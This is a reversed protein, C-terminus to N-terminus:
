AYFKSFDLTWAGDTGGGDNARVVEVKLYKYGVGATENIIKDLNGAATSWEGAADYDTSVDVYTCSAAVTGDNQVTGYVKYTNDGAAGDTNTIQLSFKPRGELDFYYNTTGNGQSSAVVQSPENESSAPTINTVKLADAGSSYGKIQAYDSGESNVPMTLLIGNTTAMLRTGYGETVATSIEDGDFERGEAGMVFPVAGYGGTIETNHTILPSGAGTPDVITAFRVGTSSISSPTTDGETDSLTPLASGDFDARSGATVVAAPSLPTDIGNSGSIHLFGLGDVSLPSYDNDTDVFGAPTDQRVAFMMIGKDGTIHAVDEILVLDDLSALSAVAPDDTALTVSPTNATIAMSGASIGAQGLILNVAARNTEDWNDIIEVATKIASTDSDITTLLAVAPDDNALTMRPTNAAVAGAGGTIAAQGSILNVAARNTEDWDDLVSLSAVILDNDAITVRQTASNISGTGGAVGVEGAILNVAARNTEDWDDLIEVATQISALTSESALSESQVFLANKASDLEVSARTDSDDDKLEIAGIQLDSVELTAEVNTLNAPNLVGEGEIITFAEIDMNDAVGNNFTIHTASEPFNDSAKVHTAKVTGGVSFTIDTRGIVIQYTTNVNTWGADWTITTTTETGDPKATVAEFTTGNVRFFAGEGTAPIKFGFERSHGATPAVPVDINMRLVGSALTWYSTIVASNLRIKNSAVSPTGSITKFFSDDLGLVSPDYTLSKVPIQKQM